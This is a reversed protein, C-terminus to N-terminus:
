PIYTKLYGTKPNMICAYITIDNHIPYKCFERMIKHYNLEGKERLKKLVKHGFERREISYMINDLSGGDQDCNTQCLTTEHNKITKRDVEGDRDRTIICSNSIGSDCVIIYCPSILKSNALYTLIQDCQIDMELVERILYGAPWKGSIARGLNTLISDGTRRYNLSISCVDPKIATFLGVYGVWSTALFVTVDDKRFDLEVTLKKLESLGWDMTRAHIPNGNIVVIGSTCCAFVEYCLQMMVLKGFPVGSRKSIGDLERYYKVMGVMSAMNIMGSCMKQVLYGGWSGFLANFIIDIEKLIENFEGKYDDIVHNWRTEPPDDLSIIYRSIEIM